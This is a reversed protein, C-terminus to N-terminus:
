GEAAAHERQRKAEEELVRAMRRAWAGVEETLITETREVLLDKMGEETPRDGNADANKRTVAFTGEGIVDVSGIGRMDLTGGGVLALRGEVAEGVPEPALDTSTALWEDYAQERAFGGTV